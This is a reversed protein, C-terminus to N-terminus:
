TVGCFGVAQTVTSNAVTAGGHIGLVFGGFPVVAAGGFNGNKFGVSTHIFTSPSSSASGVSQVIASNVWQFGATPGVLLHNGLPFPVAGDFGATAPTNGNIFSAGGFGRLQFQIGAGTTASGVSQSVPNQSAARNTAGQQSQPSAVEETLYGVVNTPTGTQS